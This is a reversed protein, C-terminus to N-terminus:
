PRFFNDILPTVKRKEVIKSMNVTVEEYGNLLHQFRLRESRVNQVVDETFINFRNTGIGVDYLEYELAYRNREAKEAKKLYYENKGVM